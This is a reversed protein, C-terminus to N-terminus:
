ISGVIYHELQDILNEKEHIVSKVVDGISILGMLRGDQLVPLHRLRKSTMLAMCDELTHELSVCVVSRTMLASVPMTMDVSKKGACYRAFDRETFIGAVVGESDLIVLSGTNHEAILALSQALSASPSATLVDSGKKLIVDQVTNM